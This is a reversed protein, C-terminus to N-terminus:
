DDTLTVQVGGVLSACVNYLFASLTALATLLVVDIVGIVTALSLVRGFGIYSMLDFSQGDSGGLVQAITRNLDDFVGMGDLIMWLVAVMIVLAIGVAVSLLFSLKMVSWPDVRALNLRVRRPAGVGPKAAATGVGAATSPAPRPGGSPRDVSPRETETDVRGRYGDARSPEGAAPTFARGGGYAQDPTSM